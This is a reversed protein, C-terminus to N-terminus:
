GKNSPLSVLFDSIEEKTQLGFNWVPIEYAAAIRLSHGTGGIKEGNQTWCLIFDVPSDLEPGLLIMVNRVMLDKVYPSLGFWKPHHLMAVGIARPSAYTADSARYIKLKYHNNNVGSAFVTDAGDAGGSHLTYNKAVALYMSAEKMYSLFENPTKRAGIGAYTFSPEIM